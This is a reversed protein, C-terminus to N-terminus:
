KHGSKRGKKKQASKSRKEALVQRAAQVIPKLTEEETAGFREILDRHVASAEERRNLAGLSVGKNVLAMAVQERLALEPAAGFRAIADDSTVIV